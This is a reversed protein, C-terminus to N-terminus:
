GRCEERWCCGKQRCTEVLKTAFCAQYGEAAQIAHIINERTTVGEIELGLNRAKEHILQMPVKATRTSPTAKIQGRVHKGPNWADELGKSQSSKGTTKFM